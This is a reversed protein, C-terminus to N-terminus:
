MAMPVRKAARARDQSEHRQKRECSVELGASAEGGGGRRVAQRLDQKKRSRLPDPLLAECEPERLEHEALLRRRFRAPAAPLTEGDGVEPMGIHVPEYRDRPRLCSIRGPLDVLGGFRKAFHHVLPASRREM